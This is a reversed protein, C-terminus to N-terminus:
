KVIVRFLKKINLSNLVKITKFTPNTVLFDCGLNFYIQTNQYDLNYLHYYMVGRNLNNDRNQRYKLALQIQEEENAERNWWYKLVMAVSTASDFKIKEYDWVGVTQNPKDMFDFSDDVYAKIQTPYIAITSDSMKEVEFKDLVYYIQFKGSLAYLAIAQNSKENLVNPLYEAGFSTDPIEYYQMQNRRLVIPKIDDLFKECEQLNTSDATISFIRNNVNSINAEKPNKAIELLNATAQMTFKDDKIEKIIDKKSNIFNQIQNLFGKTLIKGNYTPLIPNPIGQSGYSPKQLQIELMEKELGKMLPFKMYFEDWDLEVYFRLNAQANKQAMVKVKPCEKGIDNAFEKIEM